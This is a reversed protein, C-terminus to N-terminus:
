AAIEPYGDHIVGDLTRGARKKGFRGKTDRIGDRRGVHAFKGMDKARRMNEANDVLDLNEIRNDTKIGNKHDIQMGDPIRGNEAIWVIRHVLAHAQKGAVTVCARLYGKKTLAGLPRDPANSAESYVNGAKADVRLRGIDILRLVHPELQM